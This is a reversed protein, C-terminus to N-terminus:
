EMKPKLRTINNISDIRIPKPKQQLIWITSSTYADSICLNNPFAKCSFSKSGGLDIVSALDIKDLSWVVFLISEDEYM